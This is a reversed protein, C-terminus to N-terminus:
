LPWPNSHRRHTVLIIAVREMAKAAMIIIGEMIGTTAEEVITAAIPNHDAVRDQVGQDLARVREVGHNDM